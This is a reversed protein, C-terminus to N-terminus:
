ALKTIIGSYPSTTLVRKVNKQLFTPHQRYKPLEGWPQTAHLGQASVAFANHPMRKPAIDGCLPISLRQLDNYPIHLPKWGGLAGTRM